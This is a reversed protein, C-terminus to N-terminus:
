FERIVDPRVIELLFHYTVMEFNNCLTNEITYQLQNTQFFPVFRISNGFYVVFHVM